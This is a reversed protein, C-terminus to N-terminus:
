GGVWGGKEREREIYIYFAIRGSEVGVSLVLCGHDGGGDLFNSTKQAHAKPNSPCVDNGM